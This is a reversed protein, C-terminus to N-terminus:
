HRGKREGEPCWSWSAGALKVRKWREGISVELKAEAKKAKNLGKALDTSGREDYFLIAYDRHQNIPKSDMARKKNRQGRGTCPSKHIAREGDDSISEQGM